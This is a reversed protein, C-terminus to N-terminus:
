VIITNITLSNTFPLLLFRSTFFFIVGFLISLPLAPLAKKWVALLLITGFLGTIIGIFSTFVALMDFLSARGVLVSYFIFDGLGLKVGSREEEVEYSEGTPSNAANDLPTDDPHPGLEDDGTSLSHSPADHLEDLAEDLMTQDDDEPDSHLPGTVPTAMLTVFTNYLLAPINENREQATEVLLRLPGKPCLVAFLDYIAIVALITWTTWEPLRTFLVAMLVSVAIMYLQNIKVPAHWFTAAMGVVGFNWVLLAFSIWDMNWNLVSVLQWVILGFGGGLLMVTSLGLWGFLIKMCRYKYLVVFICTVVIMIGVFILANLLAGGFKKANSDGAREFYLTTASGLSEPPNLIKVLAIVLVMTICVPVLIQTVISAHAEINESQEFAQTRYGDPDDGDAGLEDPNVPAQDVGDALSKKKGLKKKKKIVKRKKKKKGNSNGQAEGIESLEVTDSSSAVPDADYDNTTSDNRQQLPDEEYDDDHSGLLSHKEHDAM